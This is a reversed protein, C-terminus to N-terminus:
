DAPRDPLWGGTQAKFVAAGWLDALHDRHEACGPMPVLGTLDETGGIDPNTRTFTWVQLRAGCTPCDIHGILDNSRDREPDAIAGALVGGVEILRVADDLFRSVPAREDETV